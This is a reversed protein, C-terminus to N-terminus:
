DDSKLKEHAILFIQLKIKLNLMIISIKNTYKINNKEKEYFM